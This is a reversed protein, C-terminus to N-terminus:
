SSRPGSSPGHGTTRAHMSSSSTLTLYQSVTHDSFNQSVIHDSFNQNALDSVFQPDIPSTSHASANGERGGYTQYCDRSRHENGRESASLDNERTGTDGKQRIYSQGEQVSSRSLKDEGVFQTQNTVGYVSGGYSSAAAVEPPVNFEGSTRAKNSRELGGLQALIASHVSQFEIENRVSVQQQVPQWRRVTAQAREWQLKQQAALKEKEAEKEADMDPQRTSSRAFNAPRTAPKRTNVDAKTHNISEPIDSGTGCQLVFLQLDKEVELQELALRIM